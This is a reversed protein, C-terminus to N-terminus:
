DFLTPESSNSAANVEVPVPEKTIAAAKKKDPKKSETEQKLRVEDSFDDANVVLGMAEKVPLSIASLFGGDLEEPTGTVIVPITLGHMAPLVSVTFSGGKQKIRIDIDINNGLQALEVFFSM